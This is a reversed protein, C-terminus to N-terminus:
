TEVIARLRDQTRDIAEYFGGYAGRDPPIDTKALWASNVHKYLDDQPRVSKDLAVLDVGSRPPAPASAAPAAGSSCSLSAAAAAVSLVSWRAVSLVSRVSSFPSISM